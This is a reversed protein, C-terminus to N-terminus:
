APRRRLRLPRSNASHSREGLVRSALMPIAARLASSSTSQALPQQRHHPFSCRALSCHVPILQCVVCVYLRVSLFFVNVHSVSRGSAIDPSTALVRRRARIHGRRLCLVLGVDQGITLLTNPLGHCLPPSHFALILHFRDPRYPASSRRPVPITCDTCDGARRNRETDDVKDRGPVGRNGLSDAQRHSRDGVIPAPGPNRPALSPDHHPDRGLGHITTTIFSM